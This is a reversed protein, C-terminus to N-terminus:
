KEISIDSEYYYKTLNRHDRIMKDPGGFWDWIEDRLIAAPRNSTLINWSSWQYSEFNKCLGHKVPNAHIYVLAQTFHNERVLVRKFPRYFLNGKRQYMKNFALAYSQFYNKFTFEILEEFSILGNLYNRESITQNQKQKSVIYEEVCHMSKVRVLFHFHNPLLCWCYLDTFPSLYKYFRRLFFSRNEDSLFLKENNNTRNYVHYVANEQFDAIYQTPIPM